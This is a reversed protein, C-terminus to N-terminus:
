SMNKVRLIQVDALVTGIHQVMCLFRLQNSVTM